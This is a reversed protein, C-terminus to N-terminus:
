KKAQLLMKLFEAVGGENNDKKTVVDAIRKLDPVANSMAVKLAGTEFLSKDNYWDGIVATRSPKIKLHKLLKKMGEGKSCGMRRIELMYTGGMQNSKYLSRKVGFTHPFTMLKSVHKMNDFYDGAILVELTDDSYNEYSAVKQFKAGLKTKMFAEHVNEETFYVASPHCLVIKLLYQDALKLARHVYKEPLHKQFISEGAPYRQILTGDLTILPIKIELQDAIETVASLLRGTAISFKVNMASLQKVLGATEASVNGDDDLLTGDLDFVVLEIRRLIEKSIM